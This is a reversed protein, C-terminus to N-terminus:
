IIKNSMSHQNVQAITHLQIYRQLLEVILKNNLAVSFSPSKLQCPHAEPVRPFVVAGLPVFM